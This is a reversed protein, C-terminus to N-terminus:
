TRNQRFARNKGSRVTRPAILRSSVRFHACLALFIHDGHILPNTIGAQPRRTLANCQGLKQEGLAVAVERGFLQVLFRQAGAHRNRQGGDVVRQVLEGLCAQQADEGDLACLRIEVGVRRVM